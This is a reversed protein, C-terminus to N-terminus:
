EKDLAWAPLSVVEITPSYGPWVGTRRCEAYVDLLRRYTDRGKRRAEDDIMVASAAFPFETEVAAFVFGLVGVNAAIQYGDSYWADQVHYSMRAIQRRFEQPSANGYTKADILIADGTNVEAVFDPRCRCLEGTTEDKWYASVEARGSRLANGIEPLARISAAQAFAAAKQDPKIHAVGPNDAEFQHWVKTNRNVEPGVAYRRAFQDPELLACHLLEGTLDAGKRSPQAPRNPDLHRAYYHLPSQAIDDLGSKSIGTGGHYADINLGHIIGLPAGVSQIYAPASVERGKQM